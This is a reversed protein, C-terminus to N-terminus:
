PGYTHKPQIESGAAARINISHPRSTAKEAAEHVGFRARTSHWTTSYTRVDAIVQEPPFTSPPLTCSIVRALSFKRRPSCTERALAVAAGAVAPGLRRSFINCNLSILKCTLFEPANISLLHITKVAVYPVRIRIIWGAPIQYLLVTNRSLQQQALVAETFTRSIAKILSAHHSSPPHFHRRRRM